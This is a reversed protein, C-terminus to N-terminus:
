QVFGGRGPPDNSCSPCYLIAVYIKAGSEGPTAKRTAVFQHHIPKKEASNNMRRPHFPLRSDRFHCAFYTAMNIRIGVLRARVTGLAPIMAATAGTLTMLLASFGLVRLDVGIEGLRPTDSPLVAIFPDVSVIAVLTGIAGGLVSVMLGETLLQGLIRTPGAGLSLRVALENRREFARVLLLNAINACAIFLFIGAIGFLMLLAPRVNRVIDDQLYVINVGYDTGPVPHIEKLHENLTEMARQAQDLTVNQRLRAIPLVTHADRDSVMPHAHIFTTWIESEGPFDFGQPMVGIITFHQENLIMTRGIVASDSGFRRQWLGHGLVVLRPRGAQDDEPVFTRGLIPPVRLAAFVGHTVQFGRVLDVQGDVATIYPERYSYIGLNEFVTNEELWDQYVPYSLHVRHSLARIQPNPSAQWGPATQWPIVLRNPEPYPLPRLLMGNGEM